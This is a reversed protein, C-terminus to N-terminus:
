KETLDALTHLTLVHPLCLEREKTLDVDLDNPLKKKWEYLRGVTIATLEQLADKSIESCGYLVDTLPMMLDYLAVWWQCIMELPNYLNQTIIQLCSYPKWTAPSQSGDWHPKQVTVGAMPSRVSRGLYYGWFQENLYAAWFITRRMRCEEISIIGKEVYPTMDLHLGLDFALRMAMGSYLWGRTDKTNSAEHHSLIVLTQITSLSPNEFECELLTRAREGFFESLSRPFTVLEPHFKPVYAAGLACMSDVLPRSYYPSESGDRKNQKRTKWFVEYNVLYLSPSEWAFYLELLDKELNDDVDINLNEKELVEQAHTQTNRSSPLNVSVLADLLTLNSTSGFYRLQGDQTLQLRGLRCALQNTFEDDADADPLGDCEVGPQLHCPDGEPMQPDPPINTRPAAEQMADMPLPIQSDHYLLAADDQLEEEATSLSPNTLIIASANTDRGNRCPDPTFHPSCNDNVSGQYFDVQPPLGALYNNHDPANGSHNSIRSGSRIEEYDVGLAQLINKLNQQDEGDMAPAELGCDRIYQSLSGVRKALLTVAIRVRITRKDDRQRYSCDKGKSQCNRCTPITGDCKVKTKRCPTCATTVHKRAHKEDKM